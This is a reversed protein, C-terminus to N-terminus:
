SDFGVIDPIQYDEQSRDFGLRSGKPQKSLEEGVVVEPISVARPEIDQTLDDFLKGGQVVAVVVLGDHLLNDSGECRNNVTIVILGDFFQCRGFRVKLDL